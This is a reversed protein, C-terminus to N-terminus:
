APADICPFGEPILMEMVFREAFFPRQEEDVGAFSRINFIFLYEVAMGQQNLRTIQYEIDECGSFRSEIIEQERQLRRNRGSLKAVRDVM